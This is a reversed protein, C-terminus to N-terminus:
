LRNPIAQAIATLLESSAANKLVYAAAGAEIAEAAFEPEAHMTVIIVKSEVGLRNLERLAKLGSLRPMSLDTVIVDPKLENAM